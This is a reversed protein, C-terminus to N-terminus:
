WPGKGLLKETLFYNSDQLRKLYVSGLVIGVAEMNPYDCSSSLCM